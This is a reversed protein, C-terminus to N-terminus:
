FHKADEYEYDSFIKKNLNVFLGPPFSSMLTVVTHTVNLIKVMGVDIEDQKRGQARWM